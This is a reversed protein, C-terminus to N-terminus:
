RFVLLRKQRQHEGSPARPPRIAPHPLRTYDARCWGCRSVRANARHPSISLRQYHVATDEAVTVLKSTGNWLSAVWIYSLKISEKTTVRPDETVKPEIFSAVAGNDEEGADIGGILPSLGFVNPDTVACDELIDATFPLGEGDADADVETDVEADLGEVGDDAFNSTLFSKWPM